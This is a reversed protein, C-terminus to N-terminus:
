PCGTTSTSVKTSGSRNLPADEGGMTPPFQACGVAKAADAPIKIDLVVLGFTEEDTFQALVGTATQGSLSESGRQRRDFGFGAGAARLSGRLDTRQDLVELRQGVVARADANIREPAQDGDGQQSMQAAGRAALFVQGEEGSAQALGLTAGQANAPLFVAREGRGALRGEAPHHRM